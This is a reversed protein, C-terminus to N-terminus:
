KCTYSLTISTFTVPCDITKVSFHTPQDNDFTCTFTSGSVTSDYIVSKYQGVAYIGTNNWLIEYGTSEEFVEITISLLGTLISDGNSTFAGFDSPDDSYDVLQFIGNESKYVQCLSIKIPNGEETTFTFNGNHEYSNLKPANKEKNIILQYIRGGGLSLNTRNTSATFAAAGAIALVSTAFIGFFVGKKSTM